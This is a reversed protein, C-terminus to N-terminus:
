TAPGPALDEVGPTLGGLFDPHKATTDFYNSTKFLEYKGEMALQRTQDAMAAVQDASMPKFTRTAEFAQNLVKENDIGTIVVSTPMNLSFHLMDLPTLSLGSKLIVSDGFTKMGLVGIQQKVLEPVVLHGFSRFHADMVNLPMQVTDFQFGHRAATALMYLHIRPDKHGTFGIYRVKGAQKAAVLAELAGDKAFIRDPDDFRLIEHFQVLDIHDVKMRQLSEDLQQQASMKTRGDIKTMLFAKNRYGGQSLATGMRIESQGGNYDWSNDLFNIGRDLAAQILKVAMKEDVPPKGIHSGGLGIASVKEGTRGLTRYLMDGRREGPDTVRLLMRPDLNGVTGDANTSMDAPSAQASATGHAAAAAAGAATGQLFTRRKM